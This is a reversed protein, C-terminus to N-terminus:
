IYFTNFVWFIMESIPFEPAFINPLAEAQTDDEQNVPEHDKNFWINM